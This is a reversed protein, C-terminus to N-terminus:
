RTVMPTVMITDHGPPRRCAADLNCHRRMQRTSMRANLRPGDPGFRERQVARARDVQARM